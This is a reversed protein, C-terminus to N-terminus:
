KNYCLDNTERLMLANKYADDFSEFEMIVYKQVEYEYEESNEIFSEAICGNDTIYIEDFNDALPEFEASLYGILYVVDKYENSFYKSRFLGCFDFINDFSIEEPYEDNLNFYRLNFKM